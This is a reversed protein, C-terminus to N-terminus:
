AADIENKKIWFALVVISWIMTWNVTPKGALFDSWLKQLERKNMIGLEGAFAINEEVLERLDKRLWEEWPFVFGMKERQYVEKPLLGDLSDVLLKKPFGELKQKDPVNLMFEVLEHDLFPVRIELAHAMSMQDADRLLVNQMYTKIELLSIQAQLPYGSGSTNLGITEHAIRAVMNNTHYSKLVKSLLPELFLQRSLPYANEVDLRNLRLLQQLKASKIDGKIMKNLHGVASRFERPWSQAWANKSLKDMQRFVPYGSFLEDGGLGSLAVTIGAEKTAKSVTYTNIGDGSPHDMSTLAHPIDLLFDKAKLRIAHHETKFKNAVLQAYKEESFKKEDFVVSFTVPRTKSVESMAAVISSSDIGGSLFAGFPVDAVLRKEVAGFFLEKIRKRNSVVNSFDEDRRNSEASWYAQQHVGEESIRMFNGPMLLKVGELITNPAHVTQYRLYEGLVNHNLKKPILGSKILSRIESAFVFETNSQWYYLPKIGLRDRGLFLEEKERDWIALAFMGNFKELCTSGWQLYAALVVETDSQTQFPYNLQARIELYNYIEGNFVLIYRKDISYFPQNSIAELDIISLRRHGLGIKSECFSGEADPGRHAMQENMRRVVTTSEREEGYFYVGNIGCM